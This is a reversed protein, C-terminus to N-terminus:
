GLDVFKNLQTFDFYLHELLLLSFRRKISSIKNKLSDLDINFIYRSIITTSSTEGGGYSLEIIPNRSNNSFSDKILLAQKKFYSRFIM